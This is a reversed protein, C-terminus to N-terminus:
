RRHRRQLRLLMERLVKPPFSTGSLNVAVKSSLAMEMWPLSKPREFDLLDYTVVHLGPTSAAWDNNVWLSHTTFVLANSASGFVTLDILLVPDVDFLAPMVRELSSRKRQPLTDVVFVDLHGVAPALDKAVLAKPTTVTSRQAAVDVVDALLEATSRTDTIGCLSSPVAVSSASGGTASEGLKAAPVPTPHLAHWAALAAMQASWTSSSLSTALPCYVVETLPKAQPPLTRSVDVHALARARAADHKDVTVDDETYASHTIRRLAPLQMAALAWRATDDDLMGHLWCLQDFLREAAVPLAGLLAAETATWAADPMSSSPPRSM